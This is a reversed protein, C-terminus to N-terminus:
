REEQKVAKIRIRVYDIYWRGDRYLVPRLVEEAERIISERLSEEVGEFPAKDFMRIWDALGNETQQPTPRDFLVAYRVQLGHRELMPAYEGVTPFYFTRRYTLGHAAFIKELAAHVHEACGKGGFECVLQGGPVLQDAINQLLTDQRGADIWHLVANSFIVDAKEPLSFACADAQMFKVNPYREQALKLMDASADVGIVRYGREALKGTLGGNGCGLDVASAGPAADILNLVDEGYQPVFSFNDRYEEANWTINM